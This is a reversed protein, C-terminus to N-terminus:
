NYLVFGERGIPQSPKTIYATAFPPPFSERALSVPGEMARGIEQPLLTGGGRVSAKPFM